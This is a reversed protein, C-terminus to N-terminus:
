TVLYWMVGEMNTNEKSEDWGLACLRDQVDHFPRQNSNAQTVHYTIADYVNLAIDNMLGAITNVCLCLGVRLITMGKMKMISKLCRYLQGRIRGTVAAIFATALADIFVNLSDGDRPFKIDLVADLKESTILNEESAM